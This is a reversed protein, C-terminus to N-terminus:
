LIKLQYLIRKCTANNIIIFSFKIKQSYLNTVYNEKFLIYFILNLNLCVFIYYYM